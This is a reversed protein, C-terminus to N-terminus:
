RMHRLMAPLGQIVFTQHDAAAAAAPPQAGTSYAAQLLPLCGAGSLLPWCFRHFWAKILTSSFLRCLTHMSCGLNKVAPVKPCCRFCIGAMGVEDYDAKDAEEEYESDGDYDDEESDGGSESGSGYDGDGAAVPRRTVAAALHNPASRCSLIHQQQQQHQNQNYGCSNLAANLMQQKKAADAAQM